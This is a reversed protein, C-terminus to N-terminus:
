IRVRRFHAVFVGLWVATALIFLILGVVFPRESLRPPQLLNAQVVQWHVFCMFVLLLASFVGGQRGLYQRTEDIREPSLWYNRNPLNILSAPLYRGLGLLLGIALPLGLAMIAMFPIYAGKPMFGNAAGGAAFHSAVVPPLKSSSAFFFVAGIAIVLLLDRFSM